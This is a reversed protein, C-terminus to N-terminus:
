RVTFEKKDDTKFQRKKISSAISRYLFTDTLINVAISWFTFREVLDRQKLLM